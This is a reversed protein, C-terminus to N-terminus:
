IIENIDVVSLDKARFTAKENNSAFGVGLVKMGGALAAEVGADADEVVLCDEPQINLKKAALLFVEPDPKSNKIENGDAVADFYSGLGIKELIFPTNKSSSGIAIKINREKLQELVKMVGTLIDAPSLNNLLERYFDNKIQALNLKEAESYQKEARKLIIELSEMRSVGRLNENIERDFYIGEEDAIKKWAQYHYEDTSVIVGDLDFIVARISM